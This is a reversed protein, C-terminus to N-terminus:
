STKQKVCFASVGRELLMERFETQREELTMSARRINLKDYKPDNPVSETEMAIPDTQNSTEMVSQDDSRIFSNFLCFCLM